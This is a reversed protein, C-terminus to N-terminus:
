IICLLADGVTSTYTSPPKAIALKSYLIAVPIRSKGNSNVTPIAAAPLSSIKSDNGNTNSSPPSYTTTAM